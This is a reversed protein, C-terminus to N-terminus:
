YGWAKLLNSRMEGPIQTQEAAISFTSTKYPAINIDIEYEESDFFNQIPDKATRPTLLIVIRKIVWHPNGNYVSGRISNDEGRHTWIDIQHLAEEDLLQGLQQPVSNPFQEACLQKITGIDRRNQALGERTAHLLCDQYNLAGTDATASQAIWLLFILLCYRNTAILM